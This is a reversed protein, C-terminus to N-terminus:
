ERNMREALQILYRIDEENLKSSASLLMRLDPNARLEERWENATKDSDHYEQKYGMLVAGNTGLADAILQLRKTPINTVVGNEYKSIAQYSVGAKTALEQQTMGAMERYYKIREGITMANIGGQENSNHVFILVFFIVKCSLFCKVLSIIM